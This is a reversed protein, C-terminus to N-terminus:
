AAERMVTAPRRNFRCEDWAERTFLCTVCDRDEGFWRPVRVFMYGGRALQELLRENDAPTHQVIMQVGLQDFPYGYMRRITERTLWRSGPLAAGTIEIRRAVEDYNHYVIGAIFKGDADAIGIATYNEFGRGRAHPILQAVARAVVEDHGYIYRLM